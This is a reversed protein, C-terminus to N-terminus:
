VSAGPLVGVEIKRGDRVITFAVSEGIPLPTLLRHLDDVTAVIRGGVEVIADGEHLRARAAPSNPEIGAIVVATDALLDLERIVEPRLRVMGVSIGLYPRRVRGHERLQQVVWSATRAPISFGLGQSWAVVATNIGIVRGRSDVLPGGSNGPNLPATHQVV